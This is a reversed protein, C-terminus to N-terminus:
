KSNLTENETDKLNNSESQSRLFLDADEFLEKEDSKM